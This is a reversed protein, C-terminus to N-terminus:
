YVAIAGIYQTPDPTGGPLTGSCTSSSSPGYIALYYVGNTTPPSINGNYHATVGTSLVSAIFCASNTGPSAGTIANPSLGVYYYQTTGSTSSGVSYDFQVNFQGGTVPSVHAQNTTGGNLLVNM